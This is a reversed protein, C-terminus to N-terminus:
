QLIIQEPVQLNELKRYLIGDKEISITTFSIMITSEVRKKIAELSTFLIETFLEELVQDQSQFREKNYCRKGNMLNFMMVIFTMRGTIKTLGALCFFRIKISFVNMGLELLTLNDMPDLRQGSAEHWTKLNYNYKNAKSTLVRIIKVQIIKDKAKLIM